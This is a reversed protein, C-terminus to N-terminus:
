GAREDPAAAPGPELVAIEWSVGVVLQGDPHWALASIPWPFRVPPATQKGTRLDWMRLTRDWGGSVAQRGRIAVATVAGAHGTLPRDRGDRLDWLRLGGGGVLALDGEVAIAHVVGTPLSGLREGTRVDWLRTTGDSGGTLITRGTVAVADIACPSVACRSEGTRLDWIGVLGDEGGSVATSGTAALAHVAGVHGSLVQIEGTEMGWTRILGDHGGAALVICRGDVTATAVATILSGQSTFKGSHRTGDALDKVGFWRGEEYAFVVVPRGYAVGLAVAGVRPNGPLPRSRRTRLDWVRVAGSSACTVALHGVTAIGRGSEGLPKGWEEGTRLDWVRGRRGAAGAVAVSRGNVEATAVATVRGPVSRGRQRGTRLDWIRLTDDEGSTVAVPRGAVHATAVARVPGVHGTLPEGYRKGTRLDFIQVTADDGCTVIRKRGDLRVTAVGNVAAGHRVAWVRRGGRVRVTDYRVALILFRGVDKVTALPCAQHIADFTWSEGTVPNWAELRGYYPVLVIDGMLAVTEVPYRGLRRECLPRVTRLDWSRLVGNDSGTIAVPMGGVMGAAVSCVGGTQNDWSPRVQENWQMGGAWAVRWADHESELRPEGTAGYRAAHVQLLWRRVDPVARSFEEGSALYATRYCKAWQGGVKDLMPFLRDPDAHILPRAGNWLFADLRGGRIARELREMRLDSLDRTASGGRLCDSIRAATASRSDEPRVM